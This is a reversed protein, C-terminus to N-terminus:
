FNVSRESFPWSCGFSCFSCNQEEVSAEHVEKLFKVSFDVLSKTNDTLM